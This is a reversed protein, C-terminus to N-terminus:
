PRNSARVSGSTGFCLPIVANTMGITCGPTVTRGSRWSVPSASNQSTKKSSARMSSEIRRPGTSSPQRTAIETSIFSRWDILAPSAASGPVTVPRETAPSISRWAGTASETTRCRSACSYM